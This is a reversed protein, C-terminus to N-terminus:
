MELWHMMIRNMKLFVPIIVNYKSIKLVIFPVKLLTIISVGLYIQYVLDDYTYISSQNEPVFPIYEYPLSYPLKAVVTDFVDISIGQINTSNDPNQTVSIFVDDEVPVLIQLKKENVPLVWGKPPSINNGPWIISKFNSKLISNKVTSHINKVIGYDETWYGVVRARQGVLNVIEYSSSQLEQNVLKFNGALGDFKTNSFEQSLKLGVSSIGFSGLETANNEIKPILFTANGSSRFVSEVAIALATVTDYAWLGFVTLESTGNRLLLQEEYHDQFYELKATKPVYSRVGLVGTMSKLISPSLSDLENAMATTIIWAYDKSMMGLEKVKMFFRPGLPKVMHVIFVRTHMSMLKYLEASIQEDTASSPIASRYPIRVNKQELGDSLSSLIGEGFENDVYVLTVERWGFAHIIESIAGVQSSDSPTTRFFYQSQISILSPSTATFTIIPVHAKDGLHIVFYAEMSTLPGIIAEVQVNKLLDM